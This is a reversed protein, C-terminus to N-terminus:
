HCHSVFGHRVFQICRFMDRIFSNLVSSLVEKNGWPSFDQKDESEWSKKPSLFIDLAALSKTFNAMNIQFLILVHVTGIQRLLLGSFAQTECRTRTAHKQPM